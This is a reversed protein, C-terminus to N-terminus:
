FFRGMLGGLMQNGLGRNQPPQNQQQFYSAIQNRDYPSQATEQQSWFPNDSYASYDMGGGMDGYGGMGGGGMLQTEMAKQQEMQDMYSQFVLKQIMESQPAAEYLGRIYPDMQFQSMGGSQQGIGGGALQLDRYGM